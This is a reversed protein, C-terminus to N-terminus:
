KAEELKLIRDNMRGIQVHIARMEQLIDTMVGRVDMTIRSSLVRLSAVETILRQM